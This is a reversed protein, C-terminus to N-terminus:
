RQALLWPALLLFLVETLENLAGLMDGTIGGCQRRFLELLLLLAIGVGALAVAAALSGFLVVLAAALVATAPVIERRSLHETFPLALGGEKRAYPLAATGMVMAWRGVVPMCVLAPWRAAAPLSALCAYRLGITLVLATAGIPGITGSRMIALREDPSKGGALGDLTDSLGDQHLGRTLIVLLVLVVFESVGGPLLRSLGFDSVALFTGLALGVVPYWAMSAALERDSPEHHRGSLPIITLFQWAILFHRSAHLTLRSAYSSM